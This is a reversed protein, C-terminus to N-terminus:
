RVVPRACCFQPQFSRSNHAFCTTQFFSNVPFSPANYVAPVVSDNRFVNVPLFSGHSIKCLSTGSPQFCMLFTPRETTRSNSFSACKGTGLSLRSHGNCCKLLWKGAICISCLHYRPLLMGKRGEHHYPMKIKLPPITSWFM